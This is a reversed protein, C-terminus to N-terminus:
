NAYAHWSRLKEAHIRPLFGQHAAVAFSPPVAVAKLESLSLPMLNLIATRGALSQSIAARLELQHSGTLVYHGNRGPHSDVEVQIYSLLEPVRQIEDLVVPSGAESLFGRPDRAAFERLHPLELNRYAYDPLVMTALTTKGAQRPGLITVVPYEKLLNRFEAEIARKIM